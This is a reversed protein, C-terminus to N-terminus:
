GLVNEKEDSRDVYACLNEENCLLWIYMKQLKIFMEQLVLNLSVNAQRRIYGKELLEIADAIGKVGLKEAHLELINIQRQFSIFDKKKTLTYLVDKFWINICKFLIPEKEKSDILKLLKIIEIYVAPEMLNKMLCTVQSHLDIFWQEKALSMAKDINNTM